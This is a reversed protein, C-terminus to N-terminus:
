NPKKMFGEMAGCPAPPPARPACCGSMLAVEHPHSQNGGTESYDFKERFFRRYLEALGPLGHEFIKKIVQVYSKDHYYGLIVGRAAELDNVGSALSVVAAGLTNVNTAIVIKSPPVPNSQIPESKLIKICDLLTNGSKSLNIYPMQENSHKGKLSAVFIPRYEAPISASESTSGGCFIVKDPRNSFKVLSNELSSGHGDTEFIVPNFGKSDQYLDNYYHYQKVLPRNLWEIHKGSTIFPKAFWSIPSNGTPLQGGLRVEAAFELCAIPIVFYGFVCALIRRM